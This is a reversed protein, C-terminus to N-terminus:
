CWHTIKGIGVDQKTSSLSRDIRIEFGKGIITYSRMGEGEYLKDCEVPNEEEGNLVYASALQSSFSLGGFVIDNNRIYSSDDKLVFGDNAGKYVNYYTFCHGKYVFSGEEEKAEDPLPSADFVIYGGEPEESSVSEEQSPISSPLSGEAGACGCLLLLSMLWLLRKGM